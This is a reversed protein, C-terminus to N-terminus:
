GLELVRYLNSTQRRKGSALPHFQPKSEIVKKAALEKVANSITSKSLGTNQSITERNPFCYGDTNACKCLFIYVCMATSSLDNEFIKCQVYFRSKKL